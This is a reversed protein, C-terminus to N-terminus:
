ASRAAYAALFAQWSLEVSDPMGYRNGAQFAPRETLYLLRRGTTVGRTVDKNFGVDSKATFVEYNAFGIVDAWEQVLASAREHLKIQYRDYPEIDPADFRKIAHHALCIVAMGRENRLANLGDLLERWYDAAFMYGKGYGFAEIDTKAHKQATHAWILREAWDLSDLVVTQYEHQESYLTAIASMVDDFTQALPFATTEIGDLGDETQIFVPAPASAAFTSKGIKHSGYVVLRPPRSSRTRQLSALSIAM